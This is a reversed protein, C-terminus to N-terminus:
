ESSKAGYTAVRALLKAVPTGRLWDYNLRFLWEAHRADAASQIRFVTWGAYERGGYPFPRALGAAVLAEGLAVPTALHQEGDLHLHGLEQEDGDVYFDTGDIREGVYHLHWHVYAAVGPWSQVTRSVGELPAVLM